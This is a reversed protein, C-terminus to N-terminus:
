KDLLFCKRQICMVWSMQSTQSVLRLRDTSRYILLRWDHISLAPIELNVQRKSVEAAAYRPM